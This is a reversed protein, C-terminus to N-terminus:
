RDTWQHTWRMQMRRNQKDDTVAVWNMRPANVNRERAEVRCNRGIPERILQTTAMTIPSAILTICCM